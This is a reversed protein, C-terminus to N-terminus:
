VRVVCGPLPGGNVVWDYVDAYQSAIRTWTFREAVLSRGRLGFAALAKGNEAGDGLYQALVRVMEEPKTMIEIAANEIFGEPLNCAATMFVPVEYSWAELVAM